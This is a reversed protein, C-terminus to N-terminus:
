GTLDVQNEASGTGKVFVAGEHEALDLRSRAVLETTGFTCDTPLLLSAKPPQRRNPEGLEPRSPVEVHSEIDGGNNTCAHGHDLRRELRARGVATTCHM